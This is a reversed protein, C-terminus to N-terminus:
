PCFSATTSRWVAQATNTVAEGPSDAKVAEIFGTVGGEAAGIVCCVGVAFMGVAFLNKVGISTRVLEIVGGGGATHAVINSYTSDKPKPKFIDRVVDEIEKVKVGLYNALSQLIPLARGVMKPLGLLAGLLVGTSIGAAKKIANSARNQADAQIEKDSMNKSSARIIDEEKQSMSHVQKLMENTYMDGNNQEVMKDITNLLKKVEENNREKDWYINDIVHCRGGCEKVFDRLDDNKNVFDEIKQDELQDGQTFVIVAYKLAEKSFSEKIKSIIEKEQQTFKEVILVIVFAHVGPASLTVCKTMESKLDDECKNTDFVGPTDIITVKRGHIQKTESQCTVSNSSVLAAFVKEGFITNALSSKGVGSNGLLVIRHETM